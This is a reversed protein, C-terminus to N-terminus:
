DEVGLTPRSWWGWFAALLALALGSIVALMSVDSPETRAVVFSGVGLGAAWCAPVFLLRWTRQMNQYLLWVASSPPRALYGKPSCHKRSNGHRWFRQPMVLRDYWFLTLLYLVVASGLAALSFARLPVWPSDTTGPASAYETAVFTLLATVFAGFAKATNMKSSIKALLKEIEPGVQASPTLAWVPIWRRKHLNLALLEARGLSPVFFFHRRRKGRLLSDVLWSMGPEHGILLVASSPVSNQGPEVFTTRTTELWTKRDKPDAYPSSSTDFVEMEPLPPVDRGLHRLEQRAKNYGEVLALATALCAPSKEHLVRRVELPKDARGYDEVVSALAYGVEAAEDRGDPHLLLSTSTDPGTKAHRMVMVWEPASSGEVSSLDEGV